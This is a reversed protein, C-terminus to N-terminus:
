ALAADLGMAYHEVGEFAGDRLLWTAYAKAHRQTPFQEVVEVWEVKHRAPEWDEIEGAITKCANPMQSIPLSLAGIFIQSLDHNILAYVKWSENQTNLKRSAPEILLAAGGGHHTSRARARARRVIPLWAVASRAM